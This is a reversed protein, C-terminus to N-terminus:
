PAMEPRTNPSALQRALASAADVAAADGAGLADMLRPLDRALAERSAADAVTAGAEVLALAAARAPPAMREAAAALTALLAPLLATQLATRVPAPLAAPVAPGPKQAAADGALWAGVMRAAAGALAYGLLAAVLPVASLALWYAAGRPAVFVGVATFGMGSILLMLVVRHQWTTMMTPAALAAAGAGAPVRGAAQRERRNPAM